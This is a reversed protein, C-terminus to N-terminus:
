SEGGYSSLRRRRQEAVLPQLVMRQHHLQGILDELDYAALPADEAGDRGKRRAVFMASAHVAKLVAQSIQLALEDQSLGREPLRDQLGPPASCSAPRDQPSESGVGDRTQAIRDMLGQIDRDAKYFHTRSVGCFKAIREIHLPFREPSREFSALYEPVKAMIKAKADAPRAM